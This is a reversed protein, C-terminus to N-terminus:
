YEPLPPCVLPFSFPVFADNVRDGNPCVLHLAFFSGKMCEIMFGLDDDFAIVHDIRRELASYHELRDTYNYWERPHINTTILIVTANMHCSSGKVEVRIPYRDLLQLLMSLSMKCNAGSFDDLLLVKDYPSIGDFFRCDPLRAYLAPFRDWCLRTKGCGTPGYLLYVVPPQTRGPASLNRMRLFGGHYRVFLGPFANVLALLGVPGRVLESARSMDSRAGRGPPPTGYEWPGDLHGEPKRCYAIAQAPSGRRAEFHISPSICSFFRRPRIPRTFFCVGQFHPTRAVSGEELQFIVYKVLRESEFLSLLLAGNVDPNNWTFVFSRNPSNSVNSSTTVLAM